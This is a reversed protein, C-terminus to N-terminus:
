FDPVTPERTEEEECSSRTWTFELAAAGGKPNFGTASYLGIAAKNSVEADVWMKYVREDRCIAMMKRVMGSGVGQRRCDPRVELEYLCVMECDRDLRPLRYALLYGLAREGSLAALLYVDERLLLTTLSADPLPAPPPDPTTKIEELIQRFIKEDGPQLRRITPPAADTM